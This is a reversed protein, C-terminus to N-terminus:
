DCYIARGLFSENITSLLINKTQKGHSGYSLVDGIMVHKYYM